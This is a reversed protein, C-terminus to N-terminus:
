NGNIKKLEDKDKLNRANCNVVKLRVVITLQVPLIVDM